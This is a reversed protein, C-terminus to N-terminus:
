RLVKNETFVTDMKIDTQEVPINDLCQFDFCIGVKKASIGGLIKDYFGKGRGLRNGAMDFAVGPIIAYDVKNWDDLREGQPELIGFREDFCMKHMGEFLRLELLEGVIVPLYFKKINSWKNIFDITNVEEPLAWYAFVINANVFDSDAEIKALISLSCKTKEEFSISAKSNKIQQRVKRKENSITSM